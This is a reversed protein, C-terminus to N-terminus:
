SSKKGQCSDRKELEEDIKKLITGKDNVWLPAALRDLPAEGTLRHIVIAPNLREIVDCVASVYSDMELLRVKGGRYMQEAPTGKLVHFSHIKVGRVGLRSLEGATDAYDAPTEGPLGIIIHACINIKERGKILAIANRSADSAHGRNIAALTRDNFSQVGLEVWVERRAAYSAIVDLKEEDICDPRTGISIGIIDDSVLAQDYIKKLEAAPAYTNTFPQFYAIFKEAGYRKRMLEMGRAAQEAISLNRDCYAARSGEEGCYVCGGTSVTGDRNPCTFGADISIKYVKRSYKKRLYDNFSNYRKM